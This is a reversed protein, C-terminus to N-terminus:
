LLPYIGLGGVLAATPLSRLNPFPHLLARLIAEPRSISLGPFNPSLRSITRQHVSERLLPANKLHGVCPALHKWAPVSAVAKLVKQEFLDRRFVETGGISDGLLKKM